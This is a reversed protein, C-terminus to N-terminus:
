FSPCTSPPEFDSDLSCQLRGLDSFFARRHRKSILIFLEDCPRPQGGPKKGEMEAAVNTVDCSGCGCKRTSVRGTWFWVSVTVALLENEHRAHRRTCCQPTWVSAALPSACPDFCVLGVYVSGFGEDAIDLREGFFLSVRVFFRFFCFRGVCLLCAQSRHQLLFLFVCVCVVRDFNM